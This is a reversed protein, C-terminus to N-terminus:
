NAQSAQEQLRVALKNISCHKTVGTVLKVGPPLVAQDTVQTLYMDGNEALSLFHAPCSAAAGQNLRIKIMAARTYWPDGYWGFKRVVANPDPDYEGNSDQVFCEPFIRGEKSPEQSVINRAM